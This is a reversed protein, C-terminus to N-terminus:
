CAVSCRARILLKLGRKVGIFGSFEAWFTGEVHFDLLHMLRRGQM